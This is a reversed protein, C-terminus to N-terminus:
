NNNAYSLKINYKKFIHEIHKTINNSKLYLLLIKIKNSNNINFDTSFIILGRSLNSKFLIKKKILIDLLKIFNNENQQCSNFFYYFIIKCFLNKHDPSKCEDKIFEIVEEVSKLYIYEEVINKIQIILTDEEIEKNDEINSITTDMKIKNVCENEGEMLKELLIQNRMNKENSIKEKIKEGYTNKSMSISLNNFWYYIDPIHKNQNLLYNSVVDSLENNFFNKSILFKIIELNNVRLIEKTYDQIFSNEEKISHNSTYDDLIKDKLINIFFEPQFNYKSKVISFINVMFLYYYELLDIDKIMKKYFEIQIDIFDSKNELEINKLYEITLNNINLESVKNLILIIKNKIKNKDLNFKTTKFINNSTKNKYKKTKINSGSFVKNIDNVVNKDLYKYESINKLKLLDQYNM